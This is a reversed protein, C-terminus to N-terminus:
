GFIFSAHEHDVHERTEKNSKKVTAPTILLSVSLCLCVCFRELRMAIEFWVLSACARGGDAQTNRQDVNTGTHSSTGYECCCARGGFGAFYYNLPTSASRYCDTRRVRFSWPW